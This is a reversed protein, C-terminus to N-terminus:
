SVSVTVTASDFGGNGDIIEYSFTDDGTFGPPPTYTLTGDQNDTVTGGNESQTDASSVTPTDGDVDTDNDLVSIIVPTEQTTTDSDNVADPDDNVANVTISITAENSDETGDNAKFTFSDLGNYDDDPIYTLDPLAGSLSGHQPLSTLQYTLPDADPDTATLTIDKSTDEGTEVNQNNASPPNNGPPSANVTIDVTAENSFAGATDRVIFSFSDLGSFGPEPMYKLMSSSSGSNGSLGGHLPLSSIYFDLSGPPDEDDSATLTIDLQSEQDTSVDQDDAVPPSNTSDVTITVTAVNSNAQGDNARYTFLDQGNFGPDPDYTFSGDTNLNATGSSPGSVMQATLQDQDPDNDNGLVGPAGVNLQTNEATSYSDNNAVPPDNAAIDSCQIVINANSNLVTPNANKVLVDHTGVTVGTNVPVANTTFTNATTVLNATVDPNCGAVNGNSDVKLAWVDEGQAGFSKTSGVAVMGGDPGLAVAEAEDVGSGGYRKAWQLVGDASFKVMWFDESGANFSRTEGVTLFGGDSTLRASSLEDFSGGGHRKQWVINGNTDLKFMWADAGASFSTSQEFIIYGDPMELICCPEEFGGGGYRKEWEINGSADLKIVMIDGNTGFSHTFGAVLYKGDSTAKVIRIVDEGTGGFRKTWQAVGSSDLKIVLYDKNAAGFSTTFGGVLYGNDLTVDIAHAMDNNTGGYNKSWQLADNSGFKTVWFDAGGNSSSYSIGAVVYGGDPTVKVSRATDGAKGGFTRQSEINGDDDIKLVWADNGGFGFSNTSGVVVYGDSTRDIGRFIDDTGPGGMKMAWTSIAYAAIADYSTYFALSVILFSVAVTVSIRITRSKLHSAFYDIPSNMRMKASVGFIDAKLLRDAFCSLAHCLVANQKGRSLRQCYVLKADLARELQFTVM